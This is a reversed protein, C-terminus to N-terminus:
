GGQKAIDVLHVDPRGDPYRVWLYKTFSYYAAESGDKYDSYKSPHNWIDCCLSILESEKCEKKFIEASELGYILCKPKSEEHDLPRERWEYGCTCIRLVHEYANQTKERYTCHVNTSGCKICPVGENFAKM